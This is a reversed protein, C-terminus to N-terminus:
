NQGSVAFNKVFTDYKRGETSEALSFHHFPTSQFPLSFVAFIKESRM